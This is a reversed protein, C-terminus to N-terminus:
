FYLRRIPSFHSNNKLPFFTGLILTLGEADKLGIETASHLKEPGLITRFVAKIWSEKSITRLTSSVICSQCLM